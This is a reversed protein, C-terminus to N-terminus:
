IASKGFLTQWASPKQIPPSQQPVGVGLKSPQASYMQAQAQAKLLKAQNQYWAKHAPWAPNPGGFSQGQLQQLGSIGQQAMLSNQAYTSGFQQLGAYGAPARYPPRWHGWDTGDGYLCTNPDKPDLVKLDAKDYGDCHQMKVFQQEAIIAKSPVGLFVGIRLYFKTKMLTITANEAAEFSEFSLTGLLDSLYASIVDDSTHMTLPETPAVIVTM